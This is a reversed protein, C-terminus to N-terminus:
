TDATPLVVGPAKDASRSHWNQGFVFGSSATVLLSNAYTTNALCHDQNRAIFGSNTTGDTTILYGTSTAAANVLNFMNDTMILNTLVKGTAIPMMAGTGTTPSAYYNGIINWRDNTGLASVLRVAGSTAKLYCNTRTISLGDM